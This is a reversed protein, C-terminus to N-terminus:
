RDEGESTTRGAARRIAANLSESTSTDEATLQGRRAAQRIVDNLGSGGDQPPAGERHQGNDHRTM